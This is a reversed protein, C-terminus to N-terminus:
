RQFEYIFAVSGDSPDQTRGLWGPYAAKHSKKNQVFLRRFSVNDQLQVFVQFHHDLWDDNHTNGANNKNEWAALFQIDRFHLISHCPRM